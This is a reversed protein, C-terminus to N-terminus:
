WRLSQKRAEEEAPQPTGQQLSFLKGPVFTQNKKHNPHISFGTM